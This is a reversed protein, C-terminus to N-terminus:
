TGPLLEVLFNKHWRVWDECFERLYSLVRRLGHEIYYYPYEGKVEKNNEKPTFTQPYLYSFLEIHVQLYNKQLFFLLFMKNVDLWTNQHSYLVFLSCCFTPQLNPSNQISCMKHATAQLSDVYAPPVWSTKRSSFGCGRVVMGGDVWKKMWVNLLCRSLALHPKQKKSLSADQDWGRLHSGNGWEGGHSICHM